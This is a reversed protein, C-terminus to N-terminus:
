TLLEGRSGHRRDVPGDLPPRQMDGLKVLRAGKFATGLEVRLADNNTGICTIHQAFPTLARAPEPTCSVHLNRGAPPVVLEPALSVWSSGADFLEFAYAAADRNRRAEAAEQPSQPGPLLEGELALLEGALSKAVAEAQAASGVVCVVRPSLCGRQDFLATDLAIARAEAVGFRSADVVVAGFGAGHQHFWVGRALSARVEALTDDSGYSWVHDGPEPALESVLQFLEPALGHLAEALAPERRSARVRVSASSALGIAIARLAAVFVNASLLVHAHAAEPTSALLAALEQESPQTELCRTLCREINPASLGSTELLRSRLARGEAAGPDQLVRAVELLREVRARRAKEAM